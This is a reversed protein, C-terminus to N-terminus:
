RPRRPLRIPPHRRHSRRLRRRPPCSRRHRCWRPHPHPHRRLRLCTPRFRPSLRPHPHRRLFTLRFRLSRHPHQRPRLSMRRFRLSAQRFRLSWRRHPHRRPLRQQRGPLWRRHPHRRPFKPQCALFWRRRPHRHLPLRRCVQSWRRHPRRRLCTPRFSLLWLRHQRRRPPRPRPTSLRHPPRRQSRRDSGGADVDACAEPGRDARAGPRRPGTGHPCPRHSCTGHSRPRHPGSRHSRTRHPGSRRGAGRRDFTIRGVSRRGPDTGSLAFCPVGGPEPRTRPHCVTPRRARRHRSRCRTTEAAAEAIGPLGRWRSARLDLLAQIRRVEASVVSAVIVGSRRPVAVGLTGIRLGQEFLVVAGTVAAPNSSYESRRDRLAARGDLAARAGSARPLM